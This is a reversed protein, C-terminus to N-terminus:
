KELWSTITGRKVGTQVATLDMDYFMPLFVNYATASGKTELYERNIGKRASSNVSITTKGNTSASSSATLSGGSTWNNHSNGCNAGFNATLPIVNESFGPFSGTKIKWNGQPVNIFGLSKLSTGGRSNLLACQGM